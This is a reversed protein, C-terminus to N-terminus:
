PFTYIVTPMCVHLDTGSEVATDVPPIRKHSSWNNINFRNAAEAQKTTHDVSIVVLGLMNSSNFLSFLVVM